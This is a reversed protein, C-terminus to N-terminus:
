AAGALASLTVSATEDWSFTQARALGTTRLQERFQPEELIRTLAAEWAASDRPEDVYLAADGCVEPLSACRTTVVPTGCAMAELPPLGFGEYLSPFALCRAGRYIDRLEAAGVNQLLIAGDPAADGVVVLAIGRPALASRSARVLTDVNKQADLTGVYLIYPTTRLQAPLQVPNGASFQEDAALPIVEIRATEVQLRNEIESKSFISDTLIWNASRVSALFPEQQSQRKRADPDPFAFPAVDHMTVVNRRGGAFFTGNWPHWVVDADWPVNAAVKFNASGLQAALTRKKMIPLPHRVLLTLEYAGRKLARSLIARLYVSIGRRDVLLNHADVAIHM